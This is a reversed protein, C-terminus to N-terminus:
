KVIAFVIMHLCDYKQILTLPFKMLTCLSCRYVLFPGKHSDSLVPTWESTEGNVVARQTRLCLFSDIWKLTKGGIDHGFLKSKLLEDPHTM